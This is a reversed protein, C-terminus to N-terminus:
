RRTIMMQPHAKSTDVYLMFYQEGVNLDADTFLIHLEDGIGDGAGRFSFEFNASEGKDLSELSKTAAKLDGKFGFMVRSVPAGLNKFSFRLDHLDGAHMGGSGTAVFFLQILAARQRKAEAASALDASVKERNVSVLDRQAEVSNRLEEAQLHLAQSSQRLEIGQQFFGLVLWLVALPGFAGALFDGVENLSMTRLTEIRDGVLWWILLLYASSILAGAWALTRAM